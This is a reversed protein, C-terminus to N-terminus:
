ATAERRRMIFVTGFVLLLLVAIIMGWESLTPVQHDQQPPAHVPGSGLGVAASWNASNSGVVDTVNWHVDHSPFPHNFGLEFPALQAPGSWHMVYPCSGSSGTVNGHPTKPDDLYSADGPVITFTWGAPMCLNRYNAPSKPSKYPDGTGIYVDTVGNALPDPTVLYVYQNGCTGGPGGSETGICQITTTSASATGVFVLLLAAVVSSVVIRSHM